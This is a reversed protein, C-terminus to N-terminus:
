FKGGGGEGGFSGGDPAEGVAAVPYRVDPVVPAILLQLNRAIQDM